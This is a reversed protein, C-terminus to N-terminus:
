QLLGLALRETSKPYPHLVAVKQGKKRREREKSGPGNGSRQKNAFAKPVTREYYPPSKPKAEAKQRRAVLLKITDEETWELNSAEHALAM